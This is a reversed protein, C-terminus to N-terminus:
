RGIVLPFVEGDMAPQFLISCMMLHFLWRKWHKGSPRDGERILEVAKTGVSIRGGVELALLAIERDFLQRNVLYGGWGTDLVEVIMKGSEADYFNCAYVKQLPMKGKLSKILEETFDTGILWGTGHRSQGIAHHM